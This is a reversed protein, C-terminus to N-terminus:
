DTIGQLALLKIILKQTNKFDINNAEKKVVVVIDYGPKISVDSTRISEKLLRKIRHRVVSNGVKKGVSIGLRSFQLENRIIFCIFCSNSKAKHHKYVKKFDKNKQLSYIRNM